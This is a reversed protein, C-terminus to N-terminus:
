RRAPRGLGCPPIRLRDFARSKSSLVTTRLITSVSIGARTEVVAVARVVMVPACRSISRIARPLSLTSVLATADVVDGFSNGQSPGSFFNGVRPHQAAVGNAQLHRAQRYLLSVASVSPGPVSSKRGLQDALGFSKERTVMEPDGVARLIANLRETGDIRFGARFMRRRCALRHGRGRERFALIEERGEIRSSAFQVLHFLVFREMIFLAVPLRPGILGRQLLRLIQDRQIARCSHPVRRTQRCAIADHHILLRAIIRGITVDSRRAARYSPGTRPWAKWRHLRLSAGVMHGSSVIM